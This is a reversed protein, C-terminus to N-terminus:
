VTTEVIYTLVILKQSYSNLVFPDFEMMTRTRLTSSREGTQFVPIIVSIRCGRIQETRLLNYWIIVGLGSCAM